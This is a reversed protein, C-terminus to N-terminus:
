SALFRPNTVKAFVPEYMEQLTAPIDLLVPVSYMIILYVNEFRPFKLPMLPYAPMGNNVDPLQPSALEPWAYGLRNLDQETGLTATNPGEGLLIDLVENPGTV